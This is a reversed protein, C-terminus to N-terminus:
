PQVEAGTIELDQTQIEERIRTLQQLPLDEGNLNFNPGSLTYGDLSGGPGFFTTYQGDGLLARIVELYASNSTWQGVGTDIRFIFIESLQEERGLTTEFERRLQWVYLKGPQLDLAATTPYQFVNLNGDIPYYEDTQVLPLVSMDNIADSLSNHIGPKYECVRIGLSCKSKGDIEACYDANWNFVPYTTRVTTEEVADLSGGPSLLDLYAPEYVELTQVLECSVSGDHILRSIFRYIGDPLRSNQLMVSAFADYRDDALDISDWSVNDILAGEVLTEGTLDTNRVLLEHQVDFVRARLVGFNTFDEFGLQPSFIQITFEFDFDDAQSYEDNANFIRYQFLDFNQAGTDMDIASLYYAVIQDNFYLEEFQWDGDCDSSFSFTLLSAFLLAAFPRM